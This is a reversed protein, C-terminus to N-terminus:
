LIKMFSLTSIYNQLSKLTLMKRYNMTLFNKVKEKTKHDKQAVKQQTDFKPNKFFAKAKDNAGDGYHLYKIWGEYHISSEKAENHELYKKPKEITQKRAGDTKKPVRRVLGFSMNSSTTLASILSVYVSFVLLTIFLLKFNNIKM